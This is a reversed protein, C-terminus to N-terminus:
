SEIKQYHLTVKNRIQQFGQRLINTGTKNAKKRLYYRQRIMQRAEMTIYKGTTVRLQLILYLLM